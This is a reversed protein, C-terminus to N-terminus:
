SVRSGAGRAMRRQAAARIIKETDRARDPHTYSMSSRHRRWVYLLEGALYHIRTIEALKLWLSWDDVSPASEDYGGVQEILAKRSMSGGHNVLNERLDWGRSCDSGVITPTSAIRGDGDLWVVLTNTYVVGVDARQDLFEAQRPLNGLLMLDDADCPSIYQGQAARILANRTAAAGHHGDNSFLRVRPHKRYRELITRTDDSSADDGVLLEFEVGRQALVSEVADAVFRGANYAPMIVSIVVM